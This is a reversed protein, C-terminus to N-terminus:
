DGDPRCGESDDDKSGHRIGIEAEEGGGVRVGFGMARWCGREGRVVGSDEAGVSRDVYGLEVFGAEFDEGPGGVVGFFDAGEDVEADVADDGVVGVAELLDEGFFFGRVRGFGGVEGGEGAGGMASAATEAGFVRERGEFVAEVMEDALEFGVGADGGVVDGEDPVILEEVGLGAAAGVALRVGAFAADVDALEGEGFGLAGEDAVLEVLAGFVAVGAEVLLVVVESESGYGYGEGFVLVEDAGVNGGVGLLEEVEDGEVGVVVGASWAFGVRVGSGAGGVGAGDAEVEFGFDRGEGVIGGARWGCEGLVVFGGGVVGELRLDEDGSEASGDSAVM